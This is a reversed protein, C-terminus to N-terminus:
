LNELPTQTNLKEKNTNTNQGAQNLVNSNGHQILADSAFKPTENVSEDVLYCLFITDISVEFVMMFLSAILYSVIFIVISPYIVSSLNSDYYDYENFVLIAIGTTFMSISLRGFIEMFKSIGEMMATRGINSWILKISEHSSYCFNTGYISCFIIGNKSCKDLICQCCSNCCNVCSFLCKGLGNQSLKTKKEIYKLTARLTRIFTIILAGFAVSGIHFRLVRVLSELIPYESLQSTENGRMKRTRQSNSNSPEIEWESFYWDAVAGAMVMFGFYIFVQMFYLLSIFHFILANWLQEDWDYYIYEGSESIFVYWEPTEATHTEKVSYIYLTVYIWFVMYLMVPISYLIPFLLLGKM